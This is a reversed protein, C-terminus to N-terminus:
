WEGINPKLGLKKDILVFLQETAIRLKRLDKINYQKEGMLGAGHGMNLGYNQLWKVKERIYDWKKGKPVEIEHLHDSAGNAWTTIEASLAKEASEYIPVIKTKWFKYDSNKDPGYNLNSPPNDSIVLYQKEKSLKMMQNYFHIKQIARNSFHEYFKASCVVLGKGFESSKM